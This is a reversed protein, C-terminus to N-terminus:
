GHDFEKALIFRLKERARSLRAKLTGEPEQFIVALEKLPTGEAEKLWLLSRTAPDLYDLARQLLDHTELAAAASPESSVPDIEPIERRLLAQRNSEISLLNLCQNHMARFLWTRLSSEGRFGQLGEPLRLFLDHVADEAASRNQLMRWAQNLLAQAHQDYVAKLGALDSRQIQAILRGEEQPALAAGLKAGMPAKSLFPLNM